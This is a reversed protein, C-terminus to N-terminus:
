GNMGTTTTEQFLAWKFMVNMVYFYLLYDMIRENLQNVGENM